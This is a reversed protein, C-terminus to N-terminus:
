EDAFNRNGGRRVTSAASLVFGVDSPSPTSGGPVFLVGLLLFTLVVVLGCAASAFRVFRYCVDYASSARM